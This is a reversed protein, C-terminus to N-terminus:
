GLGRKGISLRCSIITSVWILVCMYHIYLSADHQYTRCIPAHCIHLRGLCYTCAPLAIVNSLHWGEGADVVEVIVEGFFIEFYMGRAGAGGGCM